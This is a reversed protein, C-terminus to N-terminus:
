PHQPTAQMLLRLAENLDKDGPANGRYHGLRVVVLDHSPIIFTYQGGAGAMFYAEKPIPWAGDGNIRLNAQRM